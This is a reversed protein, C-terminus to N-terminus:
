SSADPGLTQRMDAWIHKVGLNEKWLYLIIFRQGSKDTQNRLTNMLYLFSLRHICTWHLNIPPHNEKLMPQAMSARMILAVGLYIIIPNSCISNLKTPFTVNSQFDFLDSRVDFNAIPGAYWRHIGWMQRNSVIGTKEPKKTCCAWAKTETERGPRKERMRNM